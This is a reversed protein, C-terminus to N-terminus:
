QLTKSSYIAICDKKNHHKLCDGMFIEKEMKLQNSITIIPIVFITMITIVILVCLIFREKEDINM